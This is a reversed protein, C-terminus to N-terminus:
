TPMGTKKIWADCLVKAMLEAARRPSRAYVFAKLTCTPTDHALKSAYRREECLVFLPRVGCRPCRSVIM